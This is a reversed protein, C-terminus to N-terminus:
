QCNFFRKVDNMLDATARYSLEHGVPYIVTKTMYPILPLVIALPVNEDRAGVALLTPPMVVSEYPMAPVVNQFYADQKAIMASRDKGCGVLYRRRAVPDAVPCLLVMKAIQVKRVLALGLAFWGGSSAGAVWIPRGRARTVITEVLDDWTEDPSTKRFDCLIVETNLTAGLKEGMEKGSQVCGGSFCGGHIFFLPPTGEM